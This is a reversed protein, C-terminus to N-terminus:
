CAGKGCGAGPPQSAGTKIVREIEAASFGRQIMQEKLRADGAARQAERWHYAVIAVIAIVGGVLFLLTPMELLEEWDFSALEYM